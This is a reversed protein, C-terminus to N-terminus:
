KTGLEATLKQEVARSFLLFIHEDHNMVVKPHYRIVDFFSTANRPRDKKTLM